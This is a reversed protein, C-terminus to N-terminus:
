ASQHGTLAAEVDYGHLWDQREPAPTGMAADRERQAEGDPLHFATSNGRSREQVLTTRPRRLSEYRRLAAPLEGAGADRLCVALAVADEIAQNAGQGMFPLMPHASDGLLTIRGTSWRAIPDRDHLAWLSVQDAAGIISTVEACWGEYAAAVDAVRGRRSWSESGSGSTPVTAVFNVLRGGSVPYCVLHRGPGLWLQVRPEAVVEPIRRGDVLGRYVSQGSFRPRDDVLAPRLVSHIGDAGVAAHAEAHSGDAFRLVVGNPGEETGTCRADLRVMGAPLAEVLARHLDARHMAYYPAGYREECHKGLLGRSIVSGDAWRRFEMAEPLVAASRLAHELGLRHLLRTASPSLQLGAGVEGLQPAQEYVRCELGARHLALALTLGALGGGVVAIHTPADNRM